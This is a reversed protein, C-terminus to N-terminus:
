LMVGAIVQGPSVEALSVVALCSVTEPLLLVQARDGCLGETEQGSDWAGQAGGAGLGEGLHVEGAGRIVQVVGHVGQGENVEVHVVAVV